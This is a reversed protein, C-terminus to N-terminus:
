DGTARRVSLPRMDTWIEAIYRLCEDKTGSRGADRWGLPNEKRVPWISFQEEPNVVVKFLESNTEDFM